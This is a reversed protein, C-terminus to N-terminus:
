AAAPLSGADSPQPAKVWSTVLLNAWRDDNIVLWDQILSSTATSNM